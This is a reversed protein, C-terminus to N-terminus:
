EKELSGGPGRTFSAIPIVSSTFTGRPHKRLKSTRYVAEFRVKRVNDGVHRKVAAAYSNFVVPSVDERALRLNQVEVRDDLLHDYLWGCGKMLQTIDQEHGVADVAVIRLDPIEWDTLVFMPWYQDLGFSGLLRNIAPRWALRNTAVRPMAVIICLSFLIAATLVLLHDKWCVAPIDTRHPKPERNVLGGREASLRQETGL